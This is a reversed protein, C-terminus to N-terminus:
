EDEYISDLIRQWLGHEMEVPPSKKRFIAKSLELDDVSLLKEVSLLEDCDFSELCRDLFRNLVLELELSSRKSAHFRIKKIIIDREEDM